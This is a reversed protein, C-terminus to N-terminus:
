NPLNKINLRKTINTFYQNMRNALVYEESILNNNEIPM